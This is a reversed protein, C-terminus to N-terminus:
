EDGEMLGKAHLTAMMSISALEKRSLGFEKRKEKIREGYM